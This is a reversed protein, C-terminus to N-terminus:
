IKILAKTDCVYFLGDEGAVIIFDLIFILCMFNINENAKFNMFDEDDDDQNLNPNIEKDKLNLTMKTRLM